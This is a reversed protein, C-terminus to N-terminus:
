IIPNTITSMTTILAKNSYIIGNKISYLVSKSIHFKRSIEILSPSKSDILIKLFRKQDPNLKQHALRRIISQEMDGCSTNRINEFKDEIPDQNTCVELDNYSDKAEDEDKNLLEYKIKSIIQLNNLGDTIKKVDFQLTKALNPQNKIEEKNEDLNVKHRIIYNM